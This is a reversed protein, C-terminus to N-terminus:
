TPPNAAAAANVRPQVRTWLDDFLRTDFFATVRTVHGGEFRMFWAYTNRYPMGDTAVAEADFLVVVTDGEAHVERITPKLPASMRANFPGIVETMFQRKDQYTKSAPSSGVITWEADDSLLEFPGGSGTRWREFAAVVTAKRGGQSEAPSDNRASMSCGSISLGILAAPVLRALSLRAKAHQVYSSM